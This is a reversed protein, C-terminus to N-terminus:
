GLRSQPVDLIKAPKALTSGSGSKNRAETGSLFSQIVCAAHALEMPDHGALPRIAKIVYGGALIAQPVPLPPESRSEAGILLTMRDDAIWRWAPGAACCLGPPDAQEGNETTM